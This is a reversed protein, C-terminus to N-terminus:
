FGSSVQMQWQECAVGGASLLGKMPPPPSSILVACGIMMASQTNSFLLPLCPEASCKSAQGDVRTHFLEKSWFWASYSPPATARTLLSPCPKSNPLLRSVRLEPSSRPRPHTAPGKASRDKEEGFCSAGPGRCVRPVAM